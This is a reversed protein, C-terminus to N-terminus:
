PLTATPMTSIEWLAWGTYVVVMIIIGVILLLFMNDYLRQGVPPLADGDGAPGADDSRTM